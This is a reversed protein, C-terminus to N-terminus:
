LLKLTPQHCIELTGTLSLIEVNRLTLNETLGKKM